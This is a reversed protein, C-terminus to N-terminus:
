ELAEAESSYLTITIKVGLSKQMLALYDANIGRYYHDVSDYVVPSIEPTWTGIVLSQKRAILRIEDKSLKVREFNNIFSNKIEINKVTAANVPFLVILLIFSFIKM